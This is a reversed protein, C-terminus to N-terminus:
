VFNEGIFGYKNKNKELYPFLENFYKDEDTKNLNDLNGYLWNITKETFM